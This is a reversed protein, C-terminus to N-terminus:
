PDETEVALPDPQFDPDSTDDLSTGYFTDVCAEEEDETINEVPGTLVPALM